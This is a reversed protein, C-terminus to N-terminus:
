GAFIAFLMSWFRFSCFGVHWSVDCGYTRGIFSPLDAPPPEGRFLVLEFLQFEALFL